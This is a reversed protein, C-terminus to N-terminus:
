KKMGPFYYTDRYSKVKWSSHSSVMTAQMKNILIETGMFSDTGPPDLRIVQQVELKTFKEHRDIKKIRYTVWRINGRFAEDRRTRARFPELAAKESVLSRAAQGDRDLLARSYLKVAIVEQASHLRVVNFVYLGALVSIFLFLIRRVPKPFM